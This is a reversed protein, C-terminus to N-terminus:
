SEGGEMMVSPSNLAAQDGGPAWGIIYAVLPEDSTVRMAHTLNPPCHTVTGPEATFTEEGWRCEATGSVFIYVEPHPHTHDSYIAGPALQFGSVRMDSEALVGNPGVMRTVRMADLLAESYNSYSEMRFREHDKVFYKGRGSM